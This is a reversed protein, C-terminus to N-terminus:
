IDGFSKVKNRSVAVIFIFHDFSITGVEVLFYASTRASLSGLVQSVQPSRVFKVRTRESIETNPKATVIRAFVFHDVVTHCPIKIQRAVPQQECSTDKVSITVPVPSILVIHRLAMPINDILRRFLLYKTIMSYTKCISKALRPYRTPTQKRLDPREKTLLFN